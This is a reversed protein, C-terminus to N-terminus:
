EGSAASGFRRVPGQDERRRLEQDGRRRPYHPLAQVAGDQRAPLVRPLRLHVREIGGRDDGEEAGGRPLQEARLQDEGRPDDRVGRRRAERADGRGHSAEWSNGAGVPFPGRCRVSAMYPNRGISRPRVTGETPEIEWDSERAVVRGKFPGMPTARRWWPRNGSRSPTRPGTRGSSRSARQRAPERPGAPRARRTGTRAAGRPTGTRVSRCATRRSTRGPRRGGRTSATSGGARAGRGARGTRGGSCRTSR